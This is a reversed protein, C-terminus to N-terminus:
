RLSALSDATIKGLPTRPLADVFHIPRPLFASDLHARLASLIQKATLTPAVVYATLRAFDGADDPFLFVGDEV